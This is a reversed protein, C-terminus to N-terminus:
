RSDSVHELSWMAERSHPLNITLYQPSVDFRLVTFDPWSLEPSVRLYMYPGGASWRGALFPLKEGDYPSLVFGSFTHDSRFQWYVGDGTGESVGQWSGYFLKESPRYDREYRYILVSAVFLCAVTAAVILWKDALTWAHSRPSHM